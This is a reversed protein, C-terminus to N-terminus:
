LQGSFEQMAAELIKSQKEADIAFFLDKHCLRDERM